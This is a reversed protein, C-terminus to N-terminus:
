TSIQMVIVLHGPNIKQYHWFQWEYNPFYYIKLNFETLTKQHHCNPSTFFSSWIGNSFKTSNYFDLTYVVLLLWYHTHQTNTHTHTHTSLPLPEKIEQQLGFQSIVKPAAM